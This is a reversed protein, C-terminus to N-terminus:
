LMSSASAFRFATADFFPAVIRLSCSWSSALPELGTSRLHAITVL